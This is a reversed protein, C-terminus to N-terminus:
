SLQSGPSSPSARIRPCPPTGNVDERGQVRFVIEDFDRGPVYSRINGGGDCLTIHQLERIDTPTRAPIASDVGQHRLFPRDLM